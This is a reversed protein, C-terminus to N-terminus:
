VNKDEISVILPLRREILKLVLKWKPRRKESSFYMIESVMAIPFGSAGLDVCWDIEKRLAAPNIAENEDLPIQLVM